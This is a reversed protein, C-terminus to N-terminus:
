SLLTIRKIIDATYNCKSNDWINEMILKNDKVIAYFKNENTKEIKNYSWKSNILELEEKSDDDYKLLATIELKSGHIYDYAYLKGLEYEWRPQELSFNSTITVETIKREKKVLSVIKENYFILPSFLTLLNFQRRNIQNM